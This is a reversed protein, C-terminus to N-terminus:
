EHTNTEALEQRSHLSHKLLVGTGIPPPGYWVRKRPIVPDASTKKGNDNCPRFLGNRFVLVKRKSVCKKNAPVSHEYHKQM